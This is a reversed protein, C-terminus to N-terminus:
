LFNLLTIELYYKAIQFIFHIFLNPFLWLTHTPCLFMFTESSCEFLIGNTREEKKKKRKWKQIKNAIKQRVFEM